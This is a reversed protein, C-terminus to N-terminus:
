RWVFHCRSRDLWKAVVSIPRFNSPATGRPPPPTPDEDLVIHGPGLGIQVVLKM